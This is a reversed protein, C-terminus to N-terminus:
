GIATGAFNCNTAGEEAVFSATVVGGDQRVYVLSGQLDTNNTPGSTPDDLPNFSEGVNFDDDENYFGGATSWTGGSHIIAGSVTTTASVSLQTGANCTANLALGGVNLINASSAVPAARFAFKQLALGNVKSANTANTANAANPVPGLSSELIDAGTLADNGVLDSNIANRAIRSRTVSRSRIDSSRVNATRIHKSRVANRAIDDKKVRSRGPLATATGALAVCLAIFAVAM